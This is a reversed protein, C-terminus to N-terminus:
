QDDKNEKDDKIMEIYSQIYPIMFVVFSFIMFVISSYVIVVEGFFMEKM